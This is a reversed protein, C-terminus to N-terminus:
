GLLKMAAQPASNAQALVSISANQLIQNKTMNSTEQAIDTDSIRSKAEAYNEITVGLSNGSSILRNQLAGLESRNSNVMKLAGDIKGLGELANEKSDLSLEHVGLAETKVNTKTPDFNIRHMEGNETGVQFSLVTGEGSLLHTGNFNTAMAIRDMETKLSQVEKNLFGRESEGITDSSAQVALERFRILINSTENIGGEATQVFAIGDNANRQAMRLGRVGAELNSSIALGAADDGARTIRNGSSLRAFSKSAEAANDALHRQTTISPVNTNIRLGM